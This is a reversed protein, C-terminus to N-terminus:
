ASWHGRGGEKAVPCMLSALHVMKTFAFKFVDRLKRAEIKEIQDFLRIARVSKAEHFPLRNDRIEPLHAGEKFPNGNYALRNRPHKGLEFGEIEKLLALDPKRPATAYKGCAPCRARLEKPKTKGKEWITALVTAAQECRPCTTAYLRDIGDKM